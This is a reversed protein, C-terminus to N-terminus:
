IKGLKNINNSCLHRLQDLSVSLPFMTLGHDTINSTELLKLVIKYEKYAESKEDRNLHADALYFHALWNNPMLYLAEKFRKIAELEDQEIRAIIGLLLYGEINLQDMNIVSLAIDRAEKLRKLNILINIKVAYAKYFSPKDNILEDIVQLAKLYKKEMALALADGFLNANLTRREVKHSHKLSDSFKNSVKDQIVKERINIDFSSHSVEARHKRKDVIPIEIDKYYLFLKDIEILSLIGINHYFTETSSLVIYGSPNLIQALKKFIEKKTDPSFYISVNRYFIIDVGMLEKPYNPSQLNLIRFDVAERVFDKLQYVGDKIKDFYKEKLRIDFDRFSEEYYKAKKAAKLTTSDIDVGVVSIFKNFDRGYKELLSIVLSYPEQGKSCGASMVKIFSRKKLLEPVITDTFIKLYQSERFFYTENVTLLNILENFEGQDGHIIKFYQGESQVQTTQMRKNIASALTLVRENEFFLGCRDMILDKFPLLDM